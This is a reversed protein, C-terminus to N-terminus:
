EKTDAEASAPEAPPAAEEAATAKAEAPTAKAEAPAVPASADSAGPAFVGARKFLSWVTESATAGRFLWDRAKAADLELTEPDTRPNYHGLTEIFRGDRPAGKDTVVIRYSPQHKRGTRRLRIRTAM